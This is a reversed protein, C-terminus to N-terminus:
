QSEVGMRHVVVGVSAWVVWAGPPALETGCFLWAVLASLWIAAGIYMRIRAELPSIMEFANLARIDRSSGHKSADAM